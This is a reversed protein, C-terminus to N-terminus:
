LSFNGVLLIGNTEIEIYYSGSNLDTVDINLTDPNDYIESHSIVGNNNNTITVIASAVEKYFIISIVKNCISARAIQHSLGRTIPTDESDIDQGEKDIGRGKDDTSVALLIEESTSHSNEAYNFSNSGFLLLVILLYVKNM